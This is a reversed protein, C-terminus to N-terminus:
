GFLGEERSGVPVYVRDSADRRGVTRRAQQDKLSLARDFRTSDFTEGALEEIKTLRNRFILVCDTHDNCREKGL